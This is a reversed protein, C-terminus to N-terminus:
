QLITPHIKILTIHLDIHGNKSMYSDRSILCLYEAPQRHDILCGPIQPTVFDGNLFTTRVDMQHLELDFHTVTAMIIRLSDKSTM